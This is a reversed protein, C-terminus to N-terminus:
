LIAAKNFGEILWFVPVVPLINQDYGHIIKIKNIHFINIM